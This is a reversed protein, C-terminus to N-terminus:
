AAKVVATAALESELAKLAMRMAMVNELLTCAEDDIRKHASTVYSKALKDADTKAMKAKEGKVRKVLADRISLNDKVAGDLRALADTDLEVGKMKLVISKKDKALAFKAGAFITSFVQRVVRSGSVDGKAVLKNVVSAIRGSDKSVIADHILTALYATASVGNGMSKIFNTEVTKIDNEM